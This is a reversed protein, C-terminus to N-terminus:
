FQFVVVLLMLFLQEPVKRNGTCRFQMLPSMVTERPNDYSNSFHKKAVNVVLVFLACAVDLSM